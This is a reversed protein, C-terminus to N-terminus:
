LAVIDIEHQVGAISRSVAGVFRRLGLEGHGAAGEIRVMFDHREVIIIAAILLIVSIWIEQRQACFWDGGDPVIVLDGVIGGTGARLVM